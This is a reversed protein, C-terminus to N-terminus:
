KTEYDKEKSIQITLGIVNTILEWPKLMIYLEAKYKKNFKKPSMISNGIAIQYYKKNNEHVEIIRFPFTRSEHVSVSKENTVEKNLNQNM